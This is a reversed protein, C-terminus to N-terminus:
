GASMKLIFGKKLINLNNEAAIIAKVAIRNMVESRSCSLTESITILLSLLFIEVFSSTPENRSEKRLLNGFAERSSLFTSTCEENSNLGAVNGPILVSVKSNAFFTDTSNLNVSMM